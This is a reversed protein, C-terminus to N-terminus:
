AKEYKEQLDELMVLADFQAGTSPNILGCTLAAIITGFHRDKTGDIEDMANVRARAILRQKDIEEQTM